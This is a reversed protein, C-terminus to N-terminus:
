NEFFHKGKTKKIEKVLSQFKKFVIFKMFM